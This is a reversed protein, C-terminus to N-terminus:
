PNEPRDYLGATGPPRTKFRRHVWYYQAPMERVREEIFANMRRVDAEIDPGPFDQWAPYFRTVYGERRGGLRTVCPVVAAGTIAALRSLATVTAAPVGFFPVFIADRAGFDMDPLYYLARGDKMARLVPKIGESRSYILGRGFRLRGQRMVRDFAPNSQAGYMSVLDRDMSLRIGGADLGVFHPALLIVPRNGVADWHELGELRVLREVRERSSWWLVARDLASRGFARFHTRVLAERAESGLDPFCLALNSAVVRRRSRAFRRLAVGVWEGVTALVPQPLLRLLWLLGLGLRTLLSAGVSM